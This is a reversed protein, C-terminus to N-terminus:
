ACGFVCVCVVRIEWQRTESVWGDEEVTLRRDSVKQFCETVSPGGVGVSTEILRAYVFWIM